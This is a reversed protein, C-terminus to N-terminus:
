INLIILLVNELPLYKIFHVIKLISSMYFICFTVNTLFMIISESSPLKYGSFQHHHRTPYLRQYNKTETQRECLHLQIKHIKECQM